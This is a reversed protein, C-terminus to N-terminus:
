RLQAGRRAKRPQEVLGAAAVFRARHEGLDVVPEVLAEISDISLSALVSSSSSEIQCDNPM